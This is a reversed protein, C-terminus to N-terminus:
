RGPAPVQSDEVDLETQVCNRGANKAAYLASDARALLSEVDDGSRAEAVGLSLTVQLGITGKQVPDAAVRARIREALAAAVDLTANDFILIFEEGGYRGLIDSTRAGSEMRRAVDELIHDGILHGYNDNIRKFHDLDAMVVSLARDSALADVLRNKLIRIIFARSCLQTLSDTRLSRLMVEGEGRICAISQELSSVSDSHYTEIALSMDLATIRLIFQLLDVYEKPVVQIDAPVKGILITQMLCFFCQYLGLSVGVRQHASGVKLRGEFYQPTDFQQGLSLIYQRHAAKLREDQSPEMVFDQFAAHQRLAAFFEDIIEDVNPRIVRSQLQEALDHDTPSTLGICRLREAIGADSFQFRACLSQSM